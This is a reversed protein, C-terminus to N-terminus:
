VVVRGGLWWPQIFTIRVIVSFRLITNREGKNRGNVKFTQVTSYKNLTCVYIYGVREKILQKSKTM